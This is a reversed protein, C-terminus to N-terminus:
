LQGGYLALGVAVPMQASLNRVYAPDLSPNIALMQLPEHMTVRMDEFHGKFYDLLNDLKAGGGTIVLREFVVGQHQMQYYEATRRIERALEAILMELQQQLPSPEEESNPRKLLGEQRQKLREAESFDLGLTQMIEETFRQGGIDIDRTLVPSGNQFLTVQTFAAGMDVILIHEAGNLTRFIALPEIDIAILKLGADVVAKALLDVTEHLAAVLLVKLESGEKEAEIISFDYYYSNPPYPVYKEVDWKIAEKLENATMPPFSLERVFVAKSSVAVVAERSAAGSAAVAQCITETLATSDIGAGEELMSDPLAVIGASKLVHKGGKKTLEAIKVTGTGIDIGLVAGTSGTFFHLINEKM